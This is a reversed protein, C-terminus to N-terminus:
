KYSFLFTKKNIILNEGSIHDNIYEFLFLLIQGNILQLAADRRGKRRPVYVPLREM